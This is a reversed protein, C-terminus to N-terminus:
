GAFLMQFVVILGAVFAVAILGDARDFLGGHGPILRGSDKVGARRKMWSEFFDGAQAVVALVVGTLALRVWSYALYVDGHNRADLRWWYIAAQVAVMLLGAGIMGGLLGSWTKSPSIRPAIKPGGFTRGAFYAGVDTGIVGAILLIAPTMGFFPASFMLLTFCALGVYVLGGVLWTLRAGTSEAFGLVLKSYEWLVGIGVLVVLAMFAYGGFWIAAIAVSMMAVGSITRIGLDSRPKPPPALTKSM